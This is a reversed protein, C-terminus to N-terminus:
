WSCCTIYLKNLNSDQGKDHFIMRVGSMHGYLSFPTRIVELTKIFHLFHCRLRFLHLKRLVLILLLCWYLCLTFFNKWWTCWQHCECQHNVKQSKKKKKKKRLVKPLHCVMLLPFPNLVSPRPSFIDLNARLHQLVQHVSLKLPVQDSNAWGTPGSAHVDWRFSSFCQSGDATGSASYDQYSVMLVNLSKEQCLFESKFKFILLPSNM